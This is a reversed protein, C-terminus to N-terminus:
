SRDETHTEEIARFLSIARKEDRVSPNDTGYRVQEFLSTLERVDSPELGADVAAREFEATTKTEPDSPDVLQGMEAWARYIDNESADADELRDAVRGAAKGIAESTSEEEHTNETDIEDPERQSFLIAVGVVVVGILAFVLLVLPPESPTFTGGTNGQSIGFTADNGFGFEGPSIKDPLVGFFIFLVAVAATLFLGLRVSDELIERWNYVLAYLASLVLLVLVGFLLIEIYWPFEPISVPTHDPPEMLLSGDGSAGGDGGTLGQSEKSNSLGAAALTVALGGLVAVVAHQLTKRDV